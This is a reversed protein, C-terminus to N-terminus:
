DILGNGRGLGRPGCKWTGDGANPASRLGGATTHGSRMGGCVLQPDGPSAVRRRRRFGRSGGSCGLRTRGARTPACSDRHECLAPLSWEVARCEASSWINCATLQFPGLSTRCFVFMAMWRSEFRFRGLAVPRRGQGLLLEHSVINLKSGSGRTSSTTIRLWRAWGVPKLGSSDVAARAVRFDYDVCGATNPTTPLRDEMVAPSGALSINEAGRVRRGRGARPLV